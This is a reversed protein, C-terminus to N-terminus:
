LEASRFAGAAQEAPDAQIGRHDGAIFTSPDNPPKGSAIEQPRQILHFKLKLHRRRQTPVTAPDVEKWAKRPDLSEDTLRASPSVALSNREGLTRVRREMRM